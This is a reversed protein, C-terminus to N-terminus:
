VCSRDISGIFTGVHFSKEGRQARYKERNREERGLTRFGDSQDGVVQAVAPGVVAGVAPLLAGVGCPLHEALLAGVQEAHLLSQGVLKRKEIGAARIVPTHTHAAVVTVAGSLRHGDVVVALPELQEVAPRQPQALGGIAYRAAPVSGAVARHCPDFQAVPLRALLEEVEVRVEVM